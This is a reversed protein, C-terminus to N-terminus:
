DKREREAMGENRGKGPAFFREFRLGNMGKDDV